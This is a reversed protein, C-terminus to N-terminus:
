RPSVKLLFTEVKPSWIEGAKVIEIEGAYSTAKTVTPAIFKVYGGRVPDSVDLVGAVEAVPVAGTTLRLRGTVTAGTFDGDPTEFGLPAAEGSEVDLRFM